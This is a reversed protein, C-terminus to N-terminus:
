LGEGYGRKVEDVKHMKKAALVPLSRKFVTYDEHTMVDIKQEPHEHRWRAIHKCVGDAKRAQFVWAPCTCYVKGDQHSKRIEYTKDPHSESRVM